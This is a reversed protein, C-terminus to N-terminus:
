PICGTTVPVSQMTRGKVLTATVSSAGWTCSDARRTPAAGVALILVAGLTVALLLRRVGMHTM